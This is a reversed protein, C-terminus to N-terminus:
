GWGAGARWGGGRGARRQRRREKTAIAGCLRGRGRRLLRRELPREIRLCTGDCIRGSGGWIRGAIAAITAAAIAAIAAAAIADVASM